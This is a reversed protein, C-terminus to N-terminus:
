FKVSFNVSLGEDLDKSSLSLQVPLESLAQADVGGQSLYWVATSAVEMPNFSDSSYQATSYDNFAQEACPTETVQTYSYEPLHEINDAYCQSIPAAFISIMTAVSRLWHQKFLAFRIQFANAFGLARLAQGLNVRHQKQYTLADSLQQESIIGRCILLEGLRYTQTM